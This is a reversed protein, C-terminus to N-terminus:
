PRCSRISWAGSPRSSSCGSCGRDEQEFEGIPDYDLVADDVPMPIFEQVQFGLSARLEKDPLYPLSIERVVVRQNGVGLWVQRGKFGGESWLKKLADGVAGPDRVEGNEVAGAPLAVQSPPRRDPRDGGLEVARVATSGIDLGIRGKAM